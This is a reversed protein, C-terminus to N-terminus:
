AAPFAPAVAPATILSPAANFPAEIALVPNWPANAAPPTTPVPNATLCNAVVNGWNSGKSAPFAVPTNVFSIPNIPAPANFPSCTPEL